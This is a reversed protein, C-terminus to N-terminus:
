PVEVTVTLTPTFTAGLSTGDDFCVFPNSHAEVSWDDLCVACEIGTSMRACPFKTRIQTTHVGVQM